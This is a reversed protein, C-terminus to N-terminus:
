PASACAALREALVDRGDRLAADRRQRCEEQLGQPSLRAISELLLDTGDWAPDNGFRAIADWYAARAEDARGLAALTDARTIQAESLLPHDGHRGIWAGLDAASGELDQLAARCLAARYEAEPARISKPYRVAYQRLLPAARECNGTFYLAIGLWYIAEPRLPDDPYRRLWDELLPVGEGYLGQMAVSLALYFELRTREPHSPYTELLSRLNPIAKEFRGADVDMEAQFLAAAAAGPVANSAAAVALPTEAEDPLSAVDSWAGRRRARAQSEANRLRNFVSDASAGNPLTASAGYVRALGEAVLLEALDKGGAEVVAYYRPMRSSGRADQWRTYVTFSSGLRRGTFSKARRGIKLVDGSSVNWYKAQEDIRDPYSTDTEPADVFYLRFIYEDNGHRVHFSDGDMYAGPVLRCKELKEWGHVAGPAPALSLLLSLVVAVALQRTRPLM